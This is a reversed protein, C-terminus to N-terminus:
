SNDLLRVLGFTRERYTGCTRQDDEDEEDEDARMWYVFGEDDVVSNGAEVLWPALLAGIVAAFMGFIGVLSVVVHTVKAIGRGAGNYYSLRRLVHLIRHVDSLSQGNVNRVSPQLRQRSRRPRRTLSDKPGSNGYRTPRFSQARDENIYRQRLSARTDTPPKTLITPLSFLSSLTLPSYLVLTPNWSSPFYSSQQFNSFLIIHTTFFILIALISTITFPIASLFLTRSSQLHIM